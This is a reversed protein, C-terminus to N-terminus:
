KIARLRSAPPNTRGRYTGRVQRRQPRLGDADPIRLAAVLRALVIRQQRLEVLAPHVKGDLMPGAADVEGQLAELADATRAAQRLVAEEWPELEFEASISGYLRRGATKLGKPPRPTGTLAM